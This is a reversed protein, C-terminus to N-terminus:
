ALATAPAAAAEGGGTDGGGGGGPEASATETVISQHNRDRVCGTIMGLILGVSFGTLGAICVAAGIMMGMPVTAPAAAEGTPAAALIGGIAGVLSCALGVVTVLAWPVGASSLNANLCGYFSRQGAQQRALKMRALVVRQAERRPMGQGILRRQM